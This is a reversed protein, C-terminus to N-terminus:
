PQKGNNRTPTLRGSQYMPIHLRQRHNKISL